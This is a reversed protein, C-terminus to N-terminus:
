SNCLGVVLLSNCNQDISKFNATVSPLFEYETGNGAEFEGALVPSTCDGHVDARWGGRGGWGCGMTEDVDMQVSEVVSERVTGLLQLDKRVEQALWSASTSQDGSIEVGDAGSIM